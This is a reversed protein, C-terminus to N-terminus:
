MGEFASTRNMLAACTVIGVVEDIECNLVLVAKKGLGHDAEFEGIRVLSQVPFGGPSVRFLSGGYIGHHLDWIYEVSDKVFSMQRCGASIPKMQLSHTSHASAPPFVISWTGWIPCVTEALMEGTNTDYCQLDRSSFWCRKNLTHVCGTNTRNNKIKKGAVEFVHSRFEETMFGDDSYSEMLSCETTLDLVNITKSFGSVAHMYYVKNPRSSSTYRAEDTVAPVASSM